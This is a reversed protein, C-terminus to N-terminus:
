NKRGTGYLRASPTKVGEELSLIIEELRSLREDFVSAMRAVQNELEAFGTTLDRAIESAPDQIRSIGFLIDEGKWKGPVGLTTAYVNSGGKRIFPLNSTQQERALMKRFIKAAEPHWEVPHLDLLHLRNNEVREYGLEDHATRNMWLIEGDFGFAFVMEAMADFLTLMDWSERILNESIQVRSITKEFWRVLAELDRRIMQPISGPTHSALCFCGSVGQKHFVPLIALSCLGESSLTTEKECSFDSFQGYWPMETSLIRGRESDSAWSRDAEVFAPTVGAAHRLTLIDSGEPVIYVWGCDLCGDSAERLVELCIPLAEELTAAGALALAREFSTVKIGEGPDREGM